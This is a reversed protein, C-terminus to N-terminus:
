EIWVVEYYGEEYLTISVIKCLDASTFMLSSEEDEDITVLIDFMCSEGFDGPIDVTVSSENEFMDMPLIDDGWDDSESPAVYIGYLDEGTFNIIDFELAQANLINSCLFFALSAFVFSKM